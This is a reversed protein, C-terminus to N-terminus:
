CRCQMTPTHIMEMVCVQLSNTIRDAALSRPALSALIERGASADALVEASGAKDPNEVAYFVLSLIAFFQTYMIFWYPGILVAQKRIERGIHIINRSGSIGMAACAYYRDEVPKGDTLRRSVYHLFPRYLVM